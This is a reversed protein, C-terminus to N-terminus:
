QQTLSAISNIPLLTRGPLGNYGGICLLTTGLDVLIHRLDPLELLGM